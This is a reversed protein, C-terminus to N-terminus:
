FFRFRHFPFFRMVVRASIDRRNVAGFVRSDGSLPRNDGLLFYQNQGLVVFTDPFTQVGQPLYDENIVRGDVAVVGGSISVIDGPEGIIRMVVGGREGEFSAIVIDGAGFFGFFGAARSIFLRDGPNINPSMGIGDSRVPWFLFFLLLVVIVAELFAEVWKRLRRPKEKKPAAKRKPPSKRRQVQGRSKNSNRGQATQTGRGAGKTGRPPPRRTAGRGRDSM